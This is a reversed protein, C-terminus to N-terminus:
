NTVVLADGVKARIEPLKNEADARNEFCGYRIRYWSRGDVVGEVLHTGPLDYRKQAALASAKNTDSFLQISFRCNESTTTKIDKRQEVVPPKKEKESSPEEKVVEKVETIDSTPESKKIYTCIVNNDTKGDATVLGKTQAFEMLALHKATVEQLKFSCASLQSKDKGSSETLTQDTKGIVLGATFAATLLIFSLVLTKVLLSTTVTVSGNKM